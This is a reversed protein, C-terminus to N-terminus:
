IIKKIDNEMDEPKYTPSYREIVKGKYDKLKIEKGNRDVISYDYITM